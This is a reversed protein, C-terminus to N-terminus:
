NSTQSLPSAPTFRILGFPDAYRMVLLKLNPIDPDVRLILGSGPVPTHAPGFLHFVRKEGIPDDPGPEFVNLGAVPMLQLVAGGPLDIYARFPPDMSQRPGNRGEPNM